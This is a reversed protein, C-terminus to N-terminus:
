FNNRIDRNKEKVLYIVENNIDKTGVLEYGLQAFKQKEQLFELAMNESMM